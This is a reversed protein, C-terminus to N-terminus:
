FKGFSLTFNGTFGRLEGSSYGNLALPTTFRYSAGVSARIFKVLNLEVEVGPEAIFYFAEDEVYWSADFADYYHTNLAAVGGAGLTIPFSVHVPFKPAIIPQLLIGGFGGQLSNYDSGSPHDIYLDNSFGTASIGIAFSHDIIWAGRFTTTFADQGDIQTYGVGLGAYGGHSRSKNGFLTKVGDDTSGDTQAFSSFSLIFALLWFSITKKM